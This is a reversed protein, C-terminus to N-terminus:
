KEESVLYNIVNESIDEAYDGIRRISEAIYGLPIAITAEQKLALTNIEECQKRLKDIEDINENASKIDKRFFSTISKSFINISLNSANELKGIIQKDIKEDLINIINKAIKIIHDGIRETIRSILFSTSAIQTTTQMKEAFNVNKLITNHQRAILWHLRDVENDRTLIDEALKKDQEKLATMLDEHMGKIIIHMRKLTRNFPMEAPNLLDKITITNNTEEVVEQGITTQTYQRIINQTSPNLRDKSKIKITTYGAIYAGVLKRLLFTQNTTDKVEFEKERQTQERNIKSTVLITGNSQMYLGIPDNKKINLKKIWEKPLTIIYSSGGTVQIRRIEM